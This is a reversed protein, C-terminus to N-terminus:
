SYALGKVILIDLAQATRVDFLFRVITRDAKQGKPGARFSLDPASKPSRVCVRSDDLCHDLAQFSLTVQVVSLKGSEPHFTPL